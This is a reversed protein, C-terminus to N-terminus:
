VLPMTATRARRRFLLELGIIPRPDVSSPNDRLRTSYIAMIRTRIIWDIQAEDGRRGAPKVVNRETSGAQDLWHMAVFRPQALKGREAFPTARTLLPRGPRPFAIRFRPALRCLSLDKCAAQSVSTRTFPDNSGQDPRPASLSHITTKVLVGAVSATEHILLESLTLM